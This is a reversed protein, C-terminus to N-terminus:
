MELLFNAKKLAACAADIKDTSDAELTHLHVGETLTLLYAANTKTIATVFQDVEARTSVMVSARLDGYVAHEVLVDKVTVGHDVIMYLEERVHDSVHQVAIIRSELNSHDDSVYMYGQSTAIIQEGKAKLISVDQVIVQRSVNAIEAFESGTIPEEAPKLRDIILKRRQPASMKKQESM